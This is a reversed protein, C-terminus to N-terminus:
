ILRTARGTAWAQQDPWGGPPADEPGAVFDPHIAMLVGGEWWEGNENFKGDAEAREIARRAREQVSMKKNTM